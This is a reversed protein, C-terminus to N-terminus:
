RKADEDDKKKQQRMKELEMIQSKHMKEAIHREKSMKLAFQKAKHRQIKLDHKSLKKGM